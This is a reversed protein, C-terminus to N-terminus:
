PMAGGACDSGEVASTGLSSAAAGILAEAVCCDDSGTADPKVSRGAAGVGRGRALAAATGIRAAAM